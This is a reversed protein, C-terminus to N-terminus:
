IIKFIKKCAIQWLCHLLAYCNHKSVTITRKLAILVKPYWIILRLIKMFTKSWITLKFKEVAISTVSPSMHCLKSSQVLKLIIGTKWPSSVGLLIFVCLCFQYMELNFLNTYISKFFLWLHHNGFVYYLIFYKFIFM